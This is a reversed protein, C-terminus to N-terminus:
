YDIETNTNTHTQILGELSWHVKVESGTFDGRWPDLTTVRQAKIKAMHTYSIHKTLLMPQM